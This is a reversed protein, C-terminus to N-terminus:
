QSSLSRVFEAINNELIGRGTDVIDNHGCNGIEFLRARSKFNGVQKRAFKIPIIDDEKGHFLIAPATTRGAWEDAPFKHKLLYTVPLWPYHHQAVKAIATYASILVLGSVKTQTSVWTAVGCGLSEGMLLVPLRGSPLGQIHHVLALAKERIISEGPKQSDGGYGPYEFLVINADLSSLLDFFYTRDCANGANGHFIVIWANATKSEKLYYRIGDSAIAKAKYRGVQSCEGFPAGMPFFLMKEQFFYLAAGILSYCLLGVGIIQIIFKMTGYYM